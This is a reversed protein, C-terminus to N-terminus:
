HKVRKRSLEHHYLCCVHETIEWDPKDNHYFGGIYESDEFIFCVGGLLWAEIYRGIDVLHNGKSIIIEYPTKTEAM